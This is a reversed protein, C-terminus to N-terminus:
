FNGSGINQEEVKRIIPHHNNSQRFNSFVQSQRSNYNQSTATKLNGSQQLNNPRPNMASPGTKM